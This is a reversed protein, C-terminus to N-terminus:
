APDDTIPFAFTNDGGAESMDEECYIELGDGYVEKATEVFKGVLNTEGFVNLVYNNPLKIVYLVEPWGCMYARNMLSDRIGQCVADVDDASKVAYAGCTFTNVNLMHRMAAAEAIKDIMDAPYGVSNDLEAASDETAIDHVGPANEVQNEENYDGGFTYFKDEEAYADWVRAIADVASTLPNLDDSEATESESPDAADELIEESNDAAGANGGDSLDDGGCAVLSLALSLALLIAFIKKM